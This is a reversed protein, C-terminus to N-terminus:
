YKKFKKFPIVPIEIRKGELLNFRKDKLNKICYSKRKKKQCINRIQYDNLSYAKNDFILLSFFLLFSNLLLKM